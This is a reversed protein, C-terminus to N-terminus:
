GGPRRPRLLQLHRRPDARARLHRRRPPYRARGRRRRLPAVVPGPLESMLEWLEATPIGPTFGTTASEPLVVLEAGTAEVCRRTIAVLKDLNAQVSAATLPGPAPAVQVAAATFARM